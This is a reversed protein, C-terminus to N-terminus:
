PRIDIDVSSEALRKGHADWGVAHVNRQGTLDFTYRMPFDAGKQDSSGLMWTGAHYTVKAVRADKPRVKFVVGNDVTDDQEPAVFPIEEPHYVTGEEDSAGTDAPTTDGDDTVGPGTSAATCPGGPDKGSFEYHWPEGSVTRKFGFRAASSSLWSSTTLDLASGSQHNSYGPRAALNGNNCRGTRYCNYFYQQESMTRFGSSIALRVGAAHAAKQMKLFAHGTPKSVAKGGITIVEITFPSGARYATQKSGKCSVASILEQSGSVSPEQEGDDEGDLTEEVATCGLGGAAAAALLLLAGFSRAVHVAM